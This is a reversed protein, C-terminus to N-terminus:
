RTICNINNGFATCNTRSTRPMNALISDVDANEDRKLRVYLEQLAVKADIDSIERSQVKQSLQEAKLLYLKVRADKAMGPRSDSAVSMKLCQVVDSFATNGKECEAQYSGVTACGSILLAIFASTLKRIM